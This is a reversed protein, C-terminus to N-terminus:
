GGDAMPWRGDKPDNMFPKIRRQDRKVFNCHFCFFFEFFWNV